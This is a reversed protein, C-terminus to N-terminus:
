SRSQSVPSYDPEDYGKGTLEGIKIDVQEINRLYSNRLDDRESYAYRVYRAREKRLAKIESKVRSRASPYFMRVVVTEKASEIGFFVTGGFAGIGLLLPLAPLMSSPDLSAMWLVGCGLLISLALMGVTPLWPKAFRWMKTRSHRSM